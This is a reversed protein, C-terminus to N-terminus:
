TDEKVFFNTKWSVFTAIDWIIFFFCPDKNEPVFQFNMQYSAQSNNAVHFHRSLYHFNTFDSKKAIDM